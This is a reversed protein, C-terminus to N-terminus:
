AQAVGAGPILLNGDASTHTGGPLGACTLAPGIAVTFRGPAGAAYYRGDYWRGGSYPRVSYENAIPSALVAAAAAAYVPLTELPKADPKVVAAIAATLADREAAGASMSDARHREGQEPVSAVVDHFTDLVRQTGAEMGDTLKASTEASTEEAVILQTLAATVAKIEATSLSSSATPVNLHGNSTTTNAM